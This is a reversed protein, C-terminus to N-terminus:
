VAFKEKRRGLSQHTLSISDFFNRPGIDDFVHAESSSKCPNATLNGRKGPLALSRKNWCRYM